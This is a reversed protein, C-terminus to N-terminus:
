IVESAKEGALRVVELALKSGNEAEGPWVAVRLARAYIEVM